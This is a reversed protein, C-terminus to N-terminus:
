PGRRVYTVGHVATRRAVCADGAGFAAFSLTTCGADLTFPYGWGAMCATTSISMSMSGASWTGSSV